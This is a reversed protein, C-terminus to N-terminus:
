ASGGLPQGQLITLCLLRAEHQMHLQASNPQAQIDRPVALAYAFEFKLKSSRISTDAPYYFDYSAAAKTAERTHVCPSRGHVKLGARKIGHVSCCPLALFFAERRATRQRAQEGSPFLDVGARGAAGVQARVPVDLAPLEVGGVPPTHAKPTQNARLTNKKAVSM